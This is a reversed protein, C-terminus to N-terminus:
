RAARRHSTLERTEPGGFVLSVLSWLGFVQSREFKLLIGVPHGHIGELITKAELRGRTGGREDDEAGGAIQGPALQQRRDVPQRAPLAKWRAERHDADGPFISAVVPEPGLKAVAKALEGRDVVFVVHGAGQRCPHVKDPSVELVGRDIL